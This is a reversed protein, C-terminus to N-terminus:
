GASAGSSVWRVKVRTWYTPRPSVGLLRMCSVRADPRFVPAHMARIAIFPAYTLASRALRKCSIRM